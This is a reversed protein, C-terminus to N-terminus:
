SGIEDGKRSDIEKDKTKITIEQDGGLFRDIFDSPIENEAAFKLTKNVLEKRESYRQFQKIREELERIRKQESTEQPNAKAVAADILKQLNNSKWTELSKNAHKDKESDFWSKASSDKGVFDKVKILDIPNLGTVFIEVEKSNKNKELYAQIEKINMKIVEKQGKLAKLM